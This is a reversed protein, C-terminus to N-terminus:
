HYNGEIKEVCFKLANKSEEILTKLDVETAGTAGMYAQLWIGQDEYVVSVNTIEDILIFGFLQLFSSQSLVDLEYIGHIRRQESLAKIASAVRSSFTKMESKSEVELV